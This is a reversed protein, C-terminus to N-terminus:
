IHILSLRWDADEFGPAEAGTAEGLHFAWYEGFIQTDRAGATTWALGALVCVMAFMQNFRVGCAGTRSEVM